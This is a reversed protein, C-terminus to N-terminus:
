RKEKDKRLLNIVDKFMEDNKKNMRALNEHAELITQNLDEKTPGKLDIGLFELDNKEFNTDGINFFQDFGMSKLILTIDNNSSIIVPKKGRAGNLSNAISALIGLNTSDIFKTKNIDIIVDDINNNRFVEKSFRDFGIGSSYRIDGQLKLYCCKNDIAYKIISKAM